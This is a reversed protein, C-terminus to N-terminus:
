REMSITYHLYSVEIHCAICIQRGLEKAGRKHLGCFYYGKKARLFDDQVQDTKNKYTTKNLICILANCMAAAYAGLKAAFIVIYSM